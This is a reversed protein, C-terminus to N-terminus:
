PIRIEGNFMDNKFRKSQGSGEGAASDLAFNMNQLRAESASTYTINNIHDILNTSYKKINEIQKIFPKIALYSINKFQAQTSKMTSAPEFMVSEHEELPETNVVSLLKMNVNNEPVLNFDM